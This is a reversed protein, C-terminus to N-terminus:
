NMIVIYWNLSTAIMLWLFYPVSFIAYKWGYGNRTIDTIMFLVFGLLTIEIAATTVFHGGFFLANWLINLIVSFIYLVWLEAEYVKKSFVLAGWISFTVGITFWAAGFVWGPPSWPAKNMVAYWESSTGPDTWAAGLALAGFNVLLCIFFYKWFKKM